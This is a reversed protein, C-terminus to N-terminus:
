PLQKLVGPLWIRMQRVPLNEVMHDLVLLDFEEFRLKLKRVRFSPLPKRLIGKLAVNSIVIM